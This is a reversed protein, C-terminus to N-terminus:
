ANKEFDDALSTDIPRLDASVTIPFTSKHSLELPVTVTGFGEDFIFRGMPISESISVVPPKTKDLISVIYSDGTLDSTVKIKEVRNMAANEGGEFVNDNQLIL